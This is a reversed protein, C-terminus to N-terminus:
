DRRASVYEAWAQMVPRRRELLDSRAYSRETQDGVAHSLSLEAVERSVGSEGCWDRFSSRFGHVTARRGNVDPVDLRHMIRRLANSVLAKGESSVFVLGDEGSLKRAEALVDLAASSLPVRHAKRTKHTEPPLTWTATSLDVDAWRMQQVEAGRAATLVVFRLALSAAQRSARTDAAIAALVGPVDAHPVAPHSEARDASSATVTQAIKVCEPIGQPRYGEMEAWRLVTAVRRAVRGCLNSKGARAIPELVDLVDPSEVEAVSTRGLKPLVYDRMTQEWKAGEGGAGGNWRDRNARHVRAQAEGFTPVEARRPDGGRHVIALNNLATARADALPVAPFPGLAMDVRRGRVMLRQVWSRTGSRKVYLHLGNGDSHRGFPLKHLARANLRQCQRPM